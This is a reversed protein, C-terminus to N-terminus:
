KASPKNRRALEDAIEFILSEIQSLAQRDRKINEGFYENNLQKSKVMETSYAKTLVTIQDQLATASKGTKTATFVMVRFYKDAISKLNAALQKDKADHNGNEEFVAAMNTYLAAGRAAVYAMESFDPKESKLLTQIVPNLDKLPFQEEAHIVIPTILLASIFFAQAKPQM